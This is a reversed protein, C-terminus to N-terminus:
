LVVDEILFSVFLQQTKGDIRLPLLLGFSKGKLAPATQENVRFFPRVNLPHLGPDPQISDV